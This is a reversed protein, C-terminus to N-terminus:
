FRPPLEKTRVTPVRHSGSVASSAWVYADARLNFVEAPDGSANGTGAGATRRMYLHNAQLPGNVTLKATCQSANPTATTDCTSIYGDTGTGVALLWADIQGVTDKIIINKAIVVLQPIDQQKHLVATADVLLDKTITVTSNPANIVYWKGVGVVGSTELSFNPNNIAYSGSALTAPNVVLTGSGPVTLSTNATSVPFRSAITPMTGGLQYNGFNATAGTCEPKKTAGSMTANTFTLQSVQCQSNTAALGTAGSAYGAASAMGFVVGSPIIAYEAWSGYSKGAIMKTNTRVESGATNRGVILDGGRVQVVPSKAVTICALTSYRWMTDASRYPKISYGYCVKSGVPLDPITTPFLSPLQAPMNFVTNGTSVDNCKVGAGKYQQVCPDGGGVGGSPESRGPDVTVLSIRWETPRSKTPGTNDIKPQVTIPAGPDGYDNPSTTVTPTLTYNYPVSACRPTSNAAGGSNWAGPSWRVSECLNNGVDNQTVLYSTYNGSTPATPENKYFTAGVKGRYSGMGSAGNNFGASGNFGTKNISVNVKKDMDQPGNNKLYHWWYLREGPTVNSIDGAIRSTANPNASNLTRQIYSSGALNWQKANSYCFAALNVGFVGWRQSTQAYMNQAQANSVWAGGANGNGWGWDFGYVWANYPNRDSRLAIFAILTDAGEAMCRARATSWFSYDGSGDGLSKAQPGEQRAVNYQYWGFGNSACPPDSWGCGSGGGGPVGWDASVNHNSVVIALLVALSIAIFSSLLFLRNRGM